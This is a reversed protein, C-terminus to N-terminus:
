DKSNYTTKFNILPERVFKICINITIDLKTGWQYKTSHTQKILIKSPLLSLSLPNTICNLNNVKFFRKKWNIWNSFPETETERQWRKDEGSDSVSSGEIHRLSSLQYHLCLLGFCAGWKKKKKKKKKKQSDRIQIERELYEDRCEEKDTLIQKKKLREKKDEWVVEILV